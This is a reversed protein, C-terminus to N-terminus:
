ADAAMLLALGGFALMGGWSEASFRAHLFPACWLFLAGFFAMERYAQRRISPLALACVRLSVWLGLLASALRLLFAAALPTFAGLRQLLVIVGAALWPQFAPRIRAEFEWPLVTAPEHGLRHWAFELIQWHEDAQLYGGSFWATLVHVVVAACVLWGVRTRPLLRRLTDTSARM